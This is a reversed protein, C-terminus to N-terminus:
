NIKSVVFARGSYGYDFIRRFSIHLNQKKFEEFAGYEGKTEDHYIMIIAKRIASFKGAVNEFFPHILSLLTSFFNQIFLNNKLFKIFNMM